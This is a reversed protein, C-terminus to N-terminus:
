RTADQGCAPAATLAAGVSPYIPLLRDVGTIALTRLVPASPVVLRLETGSRRALQCVQVVARVGASDIFTTFTMDAILVRLGPTVAKKLQQGIQGSNAADIEAPLTIVSQDRDAVGERLL